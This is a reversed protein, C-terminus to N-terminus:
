RVVPSDPSSVSGDRTTIRQMVHAAGALIADESAARAEGWSEVLGTLTVDGNPAVSTTVTGTAVRPDWFIREVVNDRLTGPIAHTRPGYGRVQLDDEVAMVGPVEEVDSEIIEKEEQSAVAGHLTVRASTTTVRVNASDPAAQESSVGRQVQEQISADNERKAPLVTMRDEVQRVGNVRKADGSAARAARFDAVNGSLTVVGQDVDV